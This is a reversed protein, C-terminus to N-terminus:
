GDGDAKNYYDDDNRYVRYARYYNLLDCASVTHRDERELFRVGYRLHPLAIDADILGGPEVHVKIRDAFWWKQWLETERRKKICKRRIRAEQESLWEFPSRYVHGSKCVFPRDDESVRHGHGTEHWWGADFLAWQQARPDRELGDAQPFRRCTVSFFDGDAYQYSGLRRAQANTKAYVIGGTMEDTEQVVFAKAEGVM